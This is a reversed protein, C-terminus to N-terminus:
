SKEGPRSRIRPMGIGTRDVLLRMARHCASIPAPTSASRRQFGGDREPVVIEFGSIDALQRLEQERLSAEILFFRPNGSVSRLTFDIRRELDREVTEGAIWVAAYGVAGFGITFVVAFALILRLTLSM